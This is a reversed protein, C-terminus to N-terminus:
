FPPEDSLLVDDDMFGGYPDDQEMDLDFCEDHYGTMLLERQGATLGPLCNQVKEGAVWAHFGEAPIGVLRSPKQCRPCTSTVTVRPIDGPEECTQVTFQPM